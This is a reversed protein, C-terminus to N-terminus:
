TLLFKDIEKGMAYNEYLFDIHNQAPIDSIVSGTLKKHLEIVCKDKIILDKKSYILNFPIKGRNIIHLDNRCHGSYYKSYKFDNIVAQRPTRKIDTLAGNLINKEKSALADRLFLMITGDFSKELSKIFSDSIGTNHCGAILMVKKVNNLFLSAYKLCVQAGMSYGILIYNKGEGFLKYSLANITEAYYTIGDEYKLSFGYNLIDEGASAASKFHFPLDLVLINFIGGYKKKIYDFIWLMSLHNGGAGHVLIVTGAKAPASSKHLIYFIGTDDLKIHPM